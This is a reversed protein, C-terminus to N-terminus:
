RKRKPARARSTRERSVRRKLTDSLSAGAKAGSSLAGYERELVALAEGYTLNPHKKCFEKVTKRVARSLGGFRQRNSIKRRKFEIQTESWLDIVMYSLLKIAHTPTELLANELEDCVERGYNEEVNLFYTVEQAVDRKSAYHRFQNKIVSQTPLGVDHTWTYRVEVSGDRREKVDFEIQHM